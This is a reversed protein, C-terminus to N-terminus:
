LLSESCIRAELHNRWNLTVLMMSRSFYQCACTLCCVIYWCSIYILNINCCNLITWTRLGLFPPCIIKKKWFNFFIFLYIFLYQVMYVYTRTHANLLFSCYIWVQLGLASCMMFVVSKPSIHNLAASTWVTAKFKLTLNFSMVDDKKKKDFM